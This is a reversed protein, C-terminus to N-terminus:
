PRLPSHVFHANYGSHTHTHTTTSMQAPNRSLHQIVFHQLRPNSLIIQRKVNLEINRKSGMSLSFFKGGLTKLPLPSFLPFSLSLSIFCFSHFLDFLLCFLTRNLGYYEAIQSCTAVSSLLQFRLTISDIFRKRGMLQYAIFNSSVLILKSKNGLFFLPLLFLTLLSYHVSNHFLLLVNILNSEAKNPQEL